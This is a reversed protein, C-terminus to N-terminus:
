IQMSLFAPVVVIVLVEALMLFMPILLRTGAEEGMRKARAKRDEFAQVSEMKLLDGLGKTGKRLNQSLLAGLRIYAQVNCRRGFNEYSEAEAVGSEMEYCTQKMEEYAYRIGATNKRTAYEEVIKKWARKVTMGAGLFLTIKNVIDPYDQMMQRKRENEAKKLEQQRLAKLLLGSIIGMIILIFGRSDMKHYYSVSEGQITDPLKWVRETRDLQEEKQLTEKIFQKKAEMDTMTQPCIRVACQYLAQQTEDETYTLVASLNVVEGKEEIEKERIEGRVNMVDYRDLKWSVEVPTDPIQTILNMDTEVRDLSENDGLIWQDMKRIISRFLEQIEQESYMRETIQVEVSTRKSDETKVDLEETRDGKGYDNRVIKGDTKVLSNVCDGLLLLSGAVMLVVSIYKWYKIRENKLNRDKNDKRGSLIRRHLNCSM